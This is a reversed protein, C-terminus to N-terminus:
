RVALSSIPGWGSFAASAPLKSPRLRGAPMREDNSWILVELPSLESLIYSARFIALLFDGLFKGWSLLDKSNTLGIGTFGSIVIVLASDSCRSSACWSSSRACESECECRELGLPFTERLKFLTASGDVELSRRLLVSRFRVPRLRLLEPCLGPPPAPAMIGTFMGVSTIWEPFSELDRPASPRFCPLSWTDSCYLCAVQSKNM